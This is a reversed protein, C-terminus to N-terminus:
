QNEAQRSLAKEAERVAQIFQRVRRPDKKGPATEVGSAVDVGWPEVRRVAEGVNEPTLGGALIVRGFRKAAVAQRWDFAAGTGGPTNGAGDLLFADARYAALMEPVFGNDVRFAKLKLYSGLAELYEPSERGHLQLASLGARRAIELLLAPEEDM